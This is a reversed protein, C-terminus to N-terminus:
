FPVRSNFPAYSVHHLWPAAYETRKTDTKPTFLSHKSEFVTFTRVPNAESLRLPEADAQTRTLHKHPIRAHGEDSVIIWYPTQTAQNQIM